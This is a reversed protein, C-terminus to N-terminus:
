VTLMEGEEYSGSKKGVSTRDVGTRRPNTSCVDTGRVLMQSHARRLNTTGVDTRVDTGDMGMSASVSGEWWRWSKEVVRRVHEAFCVM